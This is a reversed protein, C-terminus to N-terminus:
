HEESWRTRLQVESEGTRTLISRLHSAFMRWGVLSLSAVREALLIDGLRAQAFGDFEVANAIVDAPDNPLPPLYMRRTSKFTLLETLLQRTQAQQEATDGPIIRHLPLLAVYNRREPVLDCTSNAVLFRRDVLREGMFYAGDTGVVDGQLLAFADEEPGILDRGRAEEHWIPPQVLAGPANFAEQRQRTKPFTTAFEQIIQLADTNHSLDRLREELDRLSSM